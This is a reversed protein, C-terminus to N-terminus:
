DLTKRPYIALLWYHWNYDYYFQNTPFNPYTWKLDAIKGRDDYVLADYNGDKIGTNEIVLNNCIYIPM